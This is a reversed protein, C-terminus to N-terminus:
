RKVSITAPVGNIDWDKVYGEADVDGLTVSNAMTDSAIDSANAEIVAALKKKTSICVTIKDMVEFGAEKRMTQIKSTIERVFGESILEETLNTDIIVTLERESEAMFGEKQTKELLLDDRTLSVATGELEFNFAGATDLADVIENGDFESLAKGIKGVLKGYKPGVTRLQPKVKYTTLARADEIFKVDKINLEGRIIDCYESSLQECGQIYLTQLPQRNKINAGNRAARGLVVCRLVMDMDNELEKNIMEENCVPFDCLHVSVPATKDVTCVLNTYIQEAMFPTFPASLKAMTTLVTHLTMYANIKDQEMGSAWFRERGTRVYWNSLEDVFSTMARACDTVSYENLNEDVLKILTNLKSLVWKDMLPLKSYDLTYKTPDFSDIDAYLVFFAYTNWLTGMFKRQAESVAELSMRSPLWPASGSYFYWRVADAGQKDLVDWPSIVNGIHKSMKVGNKDCVLGLVLCNKYPSKDFLLTSIAQLSYFWGRTQDIAESIYDAPFNQEFIDQNEFPYHWQAFPMSGSDFWCDIVEPTRHMTGSCKPCTIEVGDIYPRHLEIDAPVNHGMEILEQRSGIFHIHGCDKCIWAPLPTGWYRERSLAWDIVNDLFNGMR